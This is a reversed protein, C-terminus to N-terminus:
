PSRSFRDADGGRHATGVPGYREEGVRTARGEEVAERLATRFRGPGWGDAALGGRLEDVGIPGREAIVVAIAEIERDLDEEAMAEFRSSPGATGIM